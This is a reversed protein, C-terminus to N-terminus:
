RGVQLRNFAQPAIHVLSRPDIETVCRIYRRSTMVLETYAVWHPLGSRRRFLVSSPHISVPQKSVLTSYLRRGQKNSESVTADLEAVNLFCGGLLVDILQRNIAADSSGPDERARKAAVLATASARWWSPPSMMVVAATEAKDKKKRRRRGKKAAAKEAAMTAATAGVLAEAAARAEEAAAKEVDDEELSSAMKEVIEKLQARVDAARKLARRNVFHDRCWEPNEKNLAFAEYVRVLMVHDGEGVHATESSGSGQGAEQRIGSSGTSSVAAFRKRIADAEARRTNSYHFVTDVSLMAVLTLARSLVPHRAAERQLTVNLGGGRRRKAQGPNRESPPKEVIRAASGLEARALAVASLLVCAFSPLLPLEAMRKGKETLEGMRDLAGLHYLHLLAKALATAPPPQMFAFTPVNKVGIAKLLLAVSSLECRQIEPVAHQALESFSDETYLRYCKGASSRGARGARQWAQQQSTPVVLLCEMGTSAQFGRVKVFGCDVVFQVGDITISSEAINTALIIKRVGLPSPKFAELQQESPMAAYIACVLIQAGNPHALRLNTAREDLAARVSEIESQGTLFVLVNGAGDTLPEDLHIQVVTTVVSTVYDQQAEPAYYVDVPHQRGRVRVIPADMGTREDAFFRAYLQADLTASMIVIRLPRVRVRPGRRRGRSARGPPRSGTAVGNGRMMGEEGPYAGAEASIGDNLGDTRRAASARQIGKLLAFLIDTHLSREHAEDVIVVSYRSLQKDTMTERLLVGDTLFKIQTGHPEHRPTTSDDFRISYGVEKGLEVGREEAVRRAVTLAAVRRPQTVAVAGNWRRALGADLIYQPLQTSKGSGTEGVLIFVNSQRSTVARVLQERFAYIPLTRRQEALVGLGGRELEELAARVERSAPPPARIPVNVSSSIASSSLEAPRAQAQAAGVKSSPAGSGVADRKRKAGFSARSIPAGLDLEEM